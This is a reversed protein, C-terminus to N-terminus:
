TRLWPQGSVTAGGDGDLGMRRIMLARFAVLSRRILRVRTTPPVGASRCVELVHSVGLVNTHVCGGTSTPAANPDPDAEDALNFVGTVDFEHLLRATLERDTM